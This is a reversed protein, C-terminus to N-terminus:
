DSTRRRRSQQAAAAAAGIGICEVEIVSIM